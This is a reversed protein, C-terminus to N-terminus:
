SILGSYSGIFIYGDASQVIANAESTPLGNANNYLVSSYNESPASVSREAAEAVLSKQFFCLITFVAFFASIVGAAARKFKLENLQM